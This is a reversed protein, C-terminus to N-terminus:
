AKRKKSSIIVVCQTHIIDCTLDTLAPLSERNKLSFSPLLNVFLVYEVCVHSWNGVLYFDKRVLNPSNRTASSTWKPLFFFIIELFVDGTHSSTFKM